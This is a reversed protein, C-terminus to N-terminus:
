IVMKRDVPGTIEVRRDLLDPPTPSITWDGERIARTASLCGPFTGRDIEAQVELRRKLLQERREGFVRQLRAVWSLAEFTLIESFTSPVDVGSVRIELGEPLNM